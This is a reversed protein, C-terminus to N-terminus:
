TGSFSFIGRADIILKQAEDTSMHDLARHLKFLEPTPIIASGGSEFVELDEPSFPIRRLGPSLATEIEGNIVYLQKDPVRGRNEATFYTAHTALQQLGSLKGGSKGYGKV